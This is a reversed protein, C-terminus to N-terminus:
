AGERTMVLFFEEFSLGKNNSSCNYIIDNTDRKTFVIGVQKAIYHLDERSILGTKDVDFIDFMLKIDKKTKRVNLAKKFLLLLQDFDLKQIKSYSFDDYIRKLITM